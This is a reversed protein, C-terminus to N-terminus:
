ETQAMQVESRSKLRVVMERVLVDFGECSSRNEAYHEFFPYLEEARPYYNPNPRMGRREPSPFIPKAIFERVSFYAIMDVVTHTIERSLGSSALGQEVISHPTILESLEHALFKKQVEIDPFPTFAICDTWAFGGWLCDVFHVQVDKQVWERKALQSMNALVKEGIPNWAAEFRERYDELRERTKAWVEEYGTAGERLFAIFENGLGSGTRSMQSAGELSGTRMLARALSYWSAPSISGSQRLRQLLRDQRLGANQQQYNKNGLMGDALESPLCDAYLVSAHCFENVLRDVSFSIRPARMGLRSM